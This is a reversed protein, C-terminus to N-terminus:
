MSFNEEPRFRYLVGITKLTEHKNKDKIQKNTISVFYFIEDSLSSECTLLSIPFILIGLRSTMFYLLVFPWM